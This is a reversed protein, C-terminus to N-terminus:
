QRNGERCLLLFDGPLPPIRRSQPEIPAFTYVDPLRAVYDAVWPFHCPRGSPHALKWGAATIRVVEGHREILGRELMDRIMRDQLFGVAPMEGASYGLHRCWIALAEKHHDRLVAM